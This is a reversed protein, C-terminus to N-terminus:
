DPALYSASDLLEGDFGFLAANEWHSGEGWRTNCASSIWAPEWYVTGLGGSAAVVNGLDEMFRRQGDISAPYGAVLSDEGLLNGAADNGELTWPYATEVIVFDRPISRRIAKLADGLESFAVSSWKPYYSIGVLEFDGLGAARGADMWALVNEPQAIHLMREPRPGNVYDIGAVADLAANLLVVNRAWDIPHDEPVEEDVLLNTNIENGTAVVDPLLGDRDLEMLVDRTYSALRAALEDVSSTDRWAPPRLQKGPHAWDDSYHFDLLVRMGAARARRISRKVDDLTSYPTWDPTHWLRLRVINAGANALITYPDTRQGAARYEGGCDEIENVYSLDVGRWEGANGAAIPVFALLATGALKVRKM